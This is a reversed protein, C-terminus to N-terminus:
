TALDVVNNITLQVVVFIKRRLYPQPVYMFAPWMCMSIIPIFTKGQQDLLRTVCLPSIRIQQDSTSILM